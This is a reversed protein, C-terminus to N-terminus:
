KFFLNASIYYWCCHLFSCNIKGSKEVITRGTELVVTHLLLILYSMKRKEKDEFFWNTEVEHELKHLSSKIRSWMLFYKLYTSSNLVLNMIKVNGYKILDLHVSFFLNKLESFEIDIWSKPFHLELLGLKRQRTKNEIIIGKIPWFLRM